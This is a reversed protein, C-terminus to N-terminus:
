PEAIANRNPAKPQDGLPFADQVAGPKPMRVSKSGPPAGKPADDIPLAGPVDDDDIATPETPRELLLNVATYLDTIAPSVERHEAAAANM